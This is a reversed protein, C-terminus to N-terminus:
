RVRYAPSYDNLNATFKANYAKILRPLLDPWVVSEEFVIDGGTPSQRVFVRRSPPLRGQEFAALSQRSGLVHTVGNLIRVVFFSDERKAEEATDKAPKTRLALASVEAETVQIPAAKPAPATPVGTKALPKGPVFPVPQAPPVFRRKFPSSPPPLAPLLIFPATEISAGAPTAQLPKSDDGQAFSHGVFLSCPAAFLVCVCVGHLVHNM